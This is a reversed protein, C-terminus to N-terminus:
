KGQFVNLFDDNNNRQGTAQFLKTFHAEAIKEMEDQDEV